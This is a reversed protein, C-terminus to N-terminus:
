NPHTATATGLADVFVVKGDATARIDFPASDADALYKVKGSHGLHVLRSGHANVHQM